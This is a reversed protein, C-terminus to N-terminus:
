DNFTPTYASKASVALQMARRARFFLLDHYHSQQDRSAQDVPVALM